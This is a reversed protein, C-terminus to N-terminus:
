VECGDWANFDFDTLAHSSVDQVDRLVVFVTVGDHVNSELGSGGGGGPFVVGGGWGFELSGGGQARLDGGVTVRVRSGEFFDEIGDYFTHFFRLGLQSLSLSPHTKLSSSSCLRDIHPPVSKTPNRKAHESSGAQPEAHLRRGAVSQGVSGRGRCQAVQPRGGFSAGVRPGESGRVDRWRIM